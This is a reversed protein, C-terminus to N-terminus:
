SAETTRRGRRPVHQVEVQGPRWAVGPISSLPAFPDAACQWAVALSDSILGAEEPHTQAAFRRLAHVDNLKVTVTWTVVGRDVSEAIVQSDLSVIRLADADLLEDLGDPPWILWALADFADNAAEADPHIAEADQDETNTPQGVTVASQEVRAAAERVAVADIITVEATVTRAWTQRNRGGQAREGPPTPADPDLVEFLGPEDANMEVSEIGVREVQVFRV